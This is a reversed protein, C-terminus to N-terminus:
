PKIRMLLWLVAAAVSAIGALLAMKTAMDIAAAIPVVDLVTLGALIAFALVLLIAVVRLAGPLGGGVDANEQTDM